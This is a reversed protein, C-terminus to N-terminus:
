AKKRYQAGDLYAEFNGNMYDRGKLAWVVLSPVRWGFALGVGKSRGIPVIMTDKENRKYVKERGSRGNSLDFEITGSLPAVANIVDFIRGNSYSAVSGIAYVGGGAGPVRLSQPDTEVAGRSNLLSSPLFGTNPKLGTADIFVDTTMTTGNSLALETKGDPTTSASTVRVQHKVAVQLQQLYTEAQQGIDSRVTPLLHTSGSLLTIQKTGGFESGLEGATETGAPGGGAVVVSNASPLRNHMDKLAARTFDHDGKLGWLANDASAGTAIVLAQYDITLSTQSPATAQIVLRRAGSDLQAADGQIFEFSDKPYGHFHEEIPRFSKDMPWNKENVLARPAGFVWYAQSSRNVLIVKYTDSSTAALSPIVHRLLYHAVSIGAIGAGLVVINREAM